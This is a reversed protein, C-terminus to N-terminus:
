SMSLFSDQERLRYLLWMAGIVPIAAFFLIKMQDLGIILYPLTFITGITHLGLVLGYSVRKKFGTVFALWLLAWLVAIGLFAVDPLFDIKYYKAAISKASDLKFFRMLVWPLLFYAISLRTFFLPWKLNVDTMTREM